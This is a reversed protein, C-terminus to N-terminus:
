KSVIILDFIGFRWLWFAAVESLEPAFALNLM